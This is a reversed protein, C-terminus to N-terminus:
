AAAREVVARAARIDAVRQSGWEREIALNVNSNIEKLTAFFARWDVDGSGVPVEAGWAGPITARQADKLHVQRIWPALTKLAKVPDGKDYMIMNAPDFNVCVNPHDLRRLVAALEAAAEQGTELGLLIDHTRFVDAVAGLRHLMKAFAPHSEDPPFFGAHFTILTLGMKAALAAEIQFNELNRDWTRDPAIGGTLRISELTSYDEGLCAVMGSVIALGNDRLITGTDGWIEPAERLPDLALQTRPIGTARLKEVLDRPDSPQLSWSCVALRETLASPNM